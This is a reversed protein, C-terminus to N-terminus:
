RAGLFVIRCLRPLDAEGRSHRDADAAHDTGADERDQADHCVGRV